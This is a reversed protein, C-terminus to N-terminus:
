GDLVFSIELAVSCQDKQTCQHLPSSIPLYKDVPVALRAGNAVLLRPLPRVNRFAERFPKDIRDWLTRDLYKPHFIRGDMLLLAPAAFLRM